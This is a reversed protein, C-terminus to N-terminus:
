RKKMELLCTCKVTMQGDEDPQLYERVTITEKDGIPKMLMYDRDITETEDDGDEETIHYNKWESGDKLFHYEELPNFFRAEFCEEWDVNGDSDPELVTSSMSYILASYGKLGSKAEEFSLGTDIKLKM